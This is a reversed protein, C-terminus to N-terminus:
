NDRICRVSHLIAKSFYGFIINENENFMIRRYATNYQYEDSNWWYGGRGVFDFKANYFGGPLAAFGYTDECYYSEDSGSSGCSNWGEQSKLHKSSVSNGVFINLASWETQSPIHWNEPCIGRRKSGILNSCTSTNCSVELAMATAWNYLRGYKDCNGESDGGTVDGYCLSGEIKYNLNKAMWTQTGIVVTKYENGDDDEVFGYDRL